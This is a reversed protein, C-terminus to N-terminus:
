TFAEVLPKGTEAAITAAVEDARALLVQAVARMLERRRSLPTRGWREQALRAEAVLEPVAEVPTRAVSGVVELTAPNLSALERELAVTMLAITTSREGSARSGRGRGAAFAI